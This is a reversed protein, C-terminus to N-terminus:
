AALRAPEPSGSLPAPPAEPPVNKYIREALAWAGNLDRLNAASPMMSFEVTCRQVHDAATRLLMHYEQNSCQMAAGRLTLLFSSTENETTTM